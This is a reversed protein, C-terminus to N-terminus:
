LVPPVVIPLARSKITVDIAPNTGAITVYGIAVMMHGGGGDWHWSFAVCHIQSQLAGWSLAENSTRDFTFGYEDFEPWGDNVCANPVPSDDCDTRGFYNNAQTAQDVGHGLFEM